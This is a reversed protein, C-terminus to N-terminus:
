YRSSVYRARTLSTQVLRPIRAFRRGRAGVRFALRLRSGAVAPCDHTPEGPWRPRVM